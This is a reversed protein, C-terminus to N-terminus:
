QPLHAGSVPQGALSVPAPSPSRRKGRRRARRGSPASNPARTTAVPRDLNFRNFRWESALLGWIWADQNGLGMRVVGERRFGFKTLFRSVSTAGPPTIATLRTLGYQVFPVRMIGTILPKTLWRPTDSAVSIMANGYQPQYEHFVVGAVPYNDEGVIGLTVCPGFDGGNMHPVREAVWGAWLADNGFSLKM